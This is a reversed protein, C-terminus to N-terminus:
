RRNALMRRTIAPLYQGRHLRRHYQRCRDYGGRGRPARGRAHHRPLLQRRVREGGSPGISRSSSRGHQRRCIARQMMMRRSSPSTCSSAAACRSAWATAPAPMTIPSGCSLMIVSRAACRPRSETSLSRKSAILQTGSIDTQVSKVGLDHASCCATAPTFTVGSTVCSAITARPRASRARRHLRM